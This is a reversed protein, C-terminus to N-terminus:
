ADAAQLCSHVRDAIDLATPPTHYPARNSPRVGPLVAHPLVARLQQFWPALEPESVNAAGEGSFGIFLLHLETPLTAPTTHPPLGLYTALDGAALFRTLDFGACAAVLVLVVRHLLSRLASAM